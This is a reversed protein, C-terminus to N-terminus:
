IECSGGTCAYTKAGETTDTLEYLSLEKDFDLEITKWPKLLDYYTSADIEEYPALQYVGNDKPLFSLGCVSDWNSYVWSGVEVWEDDGVYITVSPNGDSWFENFMKWYELQEIATWMHRNISGRPSKLPFDFVLTNNDEISQGVEPNYPVGKDVLLKAIPDKSNVRVRRIFYDAYRPHIGSASNVLQSVTGSPKTLTVQLPYSIGLKAAVSHSVSVAFERLDNLLRRTKDDVKRLLPSDCTGTLSVGLLREKVANNTWEISVNPFNTLTAQVCGITVAAEIKAKIDEVTDKPRIVVETLNCLGRDQLVAEACPNVRLHELNDRGYRKGKEMLAQVNIIGREGSGSRMLNLWEEMFMGCDPKETYAISNNAMSRQPNEVWFQGDKAHKMRQDSLNSFSICASRRVGGVVVCNAVMCCIDHVELSNLKRGQANKFVRITYDILQKLPDPGSARGGFTKLRAGKPRVQSYDFKPTFGDYLMRICYDYALKWGLKSDDVIHHSFSEDSVFESVVPLDGIYQREVSYGVGTGHMLVYLMEGFKEQKNMAIYACNGTLIGNSLVFDHTTPVNACYVTEYLETSEVSKVTYFSTLTKFKNQKRPLILDADILAARNLSAKYLKKDRKGYNTNDPFSYYSQVNFGFKEGHTQLWLLEDDGLALTVQSNCSVSGDAALWGRLFGLLYEDTENINPLSKLSHTKAFDGYMMVVPDGNASPPYTVPYESFLKLTDEIDSCIRIMYGNNREQKYTTTGDGYIIGHQIGLRYDISSTDIHTKDISTYQIKDGDKLQATLAERGDSLIWRHNPTAKISINTNTNLRFNVQLLKQKGYSKFVAEEWIRNSTLVNVTKDVLFKIPINGYEKTLVLTDGQLCNYAALNNEDCAKGASWLLRMSPMVAFDKIYMCSQVVNGKFDDAVKTCLYETLRNVSEDWSERRNEEDLWRAYTRKAIFEKYINDVKKDLM